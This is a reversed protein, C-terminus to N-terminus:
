IFEDMFFNGYKILFINSDLIVIVCVQIKNIKHLFYNSAINKDKSYVM